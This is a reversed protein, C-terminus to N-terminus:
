GSTIIIIFVLGVSWVLEDLDCLIKDRVLIGFVKTHKSFSIINFFSLEWSHGCQPRIYSVTYLFERHM